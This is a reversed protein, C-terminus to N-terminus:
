AQFLSIVFQASWEEDILPKCSSPLAKKRYSGVLSTLGNSKGSAFLMGSRKRMLHLISYRNMLQYCVYSKRIYLFCVRISDRAFEGMTLLGTVESAVLVQTHDFVDFCGFIDPTLDM